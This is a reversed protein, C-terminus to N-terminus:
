IALIGKAKFVMLVVMVTVLVIHVASIKLFGSKLVKHTEPNEIKAVKILKYKRIEIYMLVAWIVIMIIISVSLGMEGTVMAILGSFAIMTAIAQFIMTYIFSAKRFGLPKKATMMPIFLGAVLFGLFIKVLISHSALMQELM